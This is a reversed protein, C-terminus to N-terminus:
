YGRTRFKVVESEMSQANNEVLTCQDGPMYLMAVGHWEKDPLDEIM